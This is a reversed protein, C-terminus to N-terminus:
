TPTPQDPLFIEYWRRQHEAVREHYARVIDVWGRVERVPRGYRYFYWAPAPRPEGALRSFVAGPRYESVQVRKM